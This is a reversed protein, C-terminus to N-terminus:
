NSPAAPPSEKSSTSLADALSFNLHVQLVEYRLKLLTSVEEVQTIGTGRLSFCTEVGPPKFEVCGMMEDLLPEADEYAIGGLSQMGQLLLGPISAHLGAMGSAAFDEPMKTSARAFVLLCRIAWREAQDAPMETVKFTKGNDRNKPNPDSITVFAHRRAM